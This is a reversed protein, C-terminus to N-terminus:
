QFKTVIRVREKLHPPPLPRVPVHATGPTLALTLTSVKQYRLWMVVNGREHGLVSFGTKQLNFLL